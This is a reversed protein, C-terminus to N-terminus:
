SYADVNENIVGGCVDSRVSSWKYGYKEMVASTQKEIDESNTLEDCVVLISPGAGSISVGAAECNLALEKIENYFPFLPARSYEVICDNMGGRVLDREGSVLGAMLSSLNRTNQIVRNMEVTKPLMERAMKTKNPIFVHPIITLFSFKESIKLKRVRLPDVSNVIVMDGYISASVNDAHPSGSSAIEGRMAYYTIKELSLGLEFLTNASFIAAASSAGSSGLGLGFPIGKEIKVSVSDKIGEGEFLNILALGATNNETKLPTNDSLIRIQQGGTRDDQSVTVRDYYANHSIALVDYGPGLNASSSYAISSIAKM